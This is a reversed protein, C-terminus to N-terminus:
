GHHTSREVVLVSGLATLAFLLDYVGLVHVMAPRDVLLTLATLAVLLTSGAALLNQM